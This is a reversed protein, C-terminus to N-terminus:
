RLEEPVDEMTLRRLDTQPTLDPFTIRCRPSPLEVVRATGNDDLVGSAVERNGLVVSYRVGPMPLDEADLLLLDVYNRLPIDLRDNSQHPAVLEGGVELEAAIEVFRMGEPDTPLRLQRLPHEADEPTGEFSQPDFSLECTRPLGPVEPAPEEYVYDTEPDLTVIAAGTEDVRLRVDVSAFEVFEPQEPPRSSALYGALFRLTAPQDASATFTASSGFRELRLEAGLVGLGTAVPHTNPQM